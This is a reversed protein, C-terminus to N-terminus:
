KKKESYLREYEKYLVSDPSICLASFGYKDILRVVCSTVTEKTNGWGWIYDVENPHVLYSDPSHGDIMDLIRKAVHTSICYNKVYEFELKGIRERAASDNILWILKEKLQDPRCYVTPPLPEPIWKRYYDAFFGCTIVPVSNISAETDLGAMPTDSYLEDVVIDARRLVNLVESHPLDKVEIYEIDFGEEVLEKIIRRIVSTGKMEMNSPAHLVVPRSNITVKQKRVLDSEDIPIRMCNTSYYPKTHFHASAPNDILIFYKELMRIHKSKEKVASYISDIDMSNAGWGCYAPRSDSGCLLMVMKKNMAKLVAFEVKTVKSLLASYDFIGQGFIYIFVDYNALVYIFIIVTDIAKLIEYVGVFFTNNTNTRKKAHRKYLKLGWFSNTEGHSGFKYDMLCFFDSRFGLERYANNLREMMGAIERPGLFVSLNKKLRKEKIKRRITRIM